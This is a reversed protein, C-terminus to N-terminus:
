LNPLQVTFTTGLALKSTVQIAGNHHDVIWKAISLGLGAGGHNRSSDAQYFRDFIKDLANPAIGEGTDAVTLVTQNETRSLAVTINGGNPTHRIANDLLITLVQRIKMEDGFGPCDPKSRIHFQLEKEAAIPEFASITRSLLSSFSFIQKEIPQQNSDARALFLLSNVLQAMQESEERINQLWKKNNAITDDSNSMVIELNTQIVALPTRLEHSANSLFDKQQQWAEQIPVMARRAMFFSGALAFLLCILGASTLATLQLRIIKNEHTFDQFLIITEPGTRSQEILYPFEGDNLQVTGQASNNHLAKTILATLEDDPLAQTTSQFLVKGDPSLKVFFFYPGIKHPPRNEDDPKLLLGLDPLMLKPPKGPLEATYAPTLDDISGAQINNLTERALERSHRVMGNNFSYFTGAALLLFLAIIVAANILTLKLRLKYFM